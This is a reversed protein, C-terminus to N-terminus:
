WDGIVKEGIASLLLAEADEKSLPKSFFYGQGKECGLAKLQELQEETEIGEAIANMRLIRALTVIARVIESRDNDPKMKSVFSRDIKITSVPFRHLYSLSSYGTGFDDLCLEIDRKRLEVFLNTPVEVNEILLSETIELKLSSAELGTEALTQEIQEIFHIERLQKGSLNINIKLTIRHKFRDQWAKMQQCAEKLIWQGIPVILGTEEAIPIFEAPLILGRQPHQWRILAEFETVQGTALWVIPQYFVQFEQHNIARRLDTELQLRSVALQYMQPNFVAYCGKGQAKARYMATDADRLIEDSRQYDATSLAIGISTNTFVQQGNLNFPLALSQLIRQAVSIADKLTDIDELLITFEDGGLRALTDSPRLCESLRRAFAQLLRDGMLHGLSDNILKFGDLDLFLVAFLINPHRKIRQLAHDLRDMFLARNPLDTLADYFANRQLLEEAQKRETIDTDISDIRVPKGSADYVVQSRNYLWRVEGDPQVIRYELETKGTELLMKRHHKVQKKDEPHVIKFWLVPNAYFESAPRGFVKEAALNIYLVKLTTASASWVVDQISCLIGELRQESEYLAQEMQKRDTIDTIMGLAGAYNGNNDFLPNTSVIAWLDAGERRRFKFDHNEQIGQRRRKVYSQAIAIGEDDMFDFLSKGMIEETSYGLMRAMQPNVFNTSNNRDIIWIGETATEVIRRYKEESEQLAQKAKYRETIDRLSILYAAQREWNIEGVRMEATILDGTPQQICIEAPEGVVCPLGFSHELLETQSLKFLSEAAPNVFLVKGDKGVVMLGDSITNIIQQLREESELLAIESQKRDSIDRVLILAEETGLPVIRVEEYTVSDYKELQHEYLQLEGTALAQAIAQLQKQLLPPPLVDALSNKIPLFTGADNTKPFICDLCLGDRRVRLMLDPIAGLIALNRAELQQFVQEARKRDTIDVVQGLLYLPEGQADRILATQLIANVVKGDKTLYRKERRFNSIEGQLLKQHLPLEDPLDDPHSIATCGLQLIEEHTYGLMNGLAQNVRLFKGEPTAIAIGIPALDFTLRFIEESDRLNQEVQKRDTIDESICLLYQPRYNEDYLPVKITHLLRRGLSYSDIPEEPIDEIIGQAFAERDKQEFFDAQEQPFYDRVTKGIAQQSTLGFMLECTKNWLLMQGFKEPRGDKVFVAVPLYDITTQLFNKTQQIEAEIQKRQTIDRDIGRYGQFTGDADFFPVGSTELIVLRGNKHRNANELCQFPLRQTAIPTFLNAVRRAEAEPMLDFPTKGIIEEPEYGLLDRVKSSAYTYVANENVEWVWDSSTEVLNRFREKSEQLAAEIQKRDSIDAIIAIFYEPDGAQERIASVTVQGWIISGDKRIYRKEKSFSPISNNLLSQLSTRDGAVYDPHTVDTFRLQCLEAATYGLLNSFAQNVELFRGDTTVLAISVAAQEFLGKSKSLITKLQKQGILYGIFFSVFTLLLVALSLYTIEAFTIQSLM